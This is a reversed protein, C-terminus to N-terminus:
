GSLDSPTMFDLRRSSKLHNGSHDAGSMRAAIPHPQPERVTERSLDVKFALQSAFRELRQLIDGFEGLEPGIWLQMREDPRVTGVERRLEQVLPHLFRPLPIRNVRPMNDLGCPIAHATAHRDALSGSGFTV